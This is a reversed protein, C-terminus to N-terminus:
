VRQVYENTKTDVKIVDGSEIFMPVEIRAGTELIALRNSAVMAEKAGLDEMKVVMLELFHPTEMSFITDGYFFATVIIGEKLYQTRHEIVKQDVLVQKLNDIDLFLYKKGEKYLFELQHEKLSVESVDEDLKFSKEIIEDTMVDKLKTKIFSLGKTMTVRVNSEVRYIKDGLSLTMGPTIQSSKIM